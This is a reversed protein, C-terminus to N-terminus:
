TIQHDRVARVAAVEDDSYLKYSNQFAGSQFGMASAHQQLSTVAAFDLRLSRGVASHEKTDTHALILLEALCSFVDNRNQLGFLHPMTIGQTQVVGGELVLYTSDTMLSKEVDTPQADDILVTGPRVHRRSVLADPRNTATVVVDCTQLLDLTSASQVEAKPNLEQIYSEIERMDEKKQSLDILLFRMCGEKALYQAVGAGISGAAGVIGVQVTGPTVGMVTCVRRFLDVINIITYLRGTTVCVGSDIPLDTGGKSLSATLAGLGLRKAGYLSALRVAQRIKRGAMLKDNLMQPATVPCSVIWGTLERGEPSTVGRVPAVRVPWHLRLICYLIPKPVYRAAPYMICVDRIDRPHVIFAFDCGTGRVGTVHRYLDELLRV